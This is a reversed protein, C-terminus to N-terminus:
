NIRAKLKSIVEKINIFPLSMISWLSMYFLFAGPIIYVFPIPREVLVGNIEKHYTIWPAASEFLVYVDNGSGWIGMYNPLYNRLGVEVFFATLAMNYLAGFMLLLFMYGLNKISPVHLKWAILLLPVGVLIVHALFFRITNYAFITDGAINNPYLLSSFAFVAGLYYMYDKLIKNKSLMFFPYVLTSFGCLDTFFLEYTKLDPELWYRSFHIVWALVTLSFLFWYKFRNSKNKFAYYLGVIVLPVLGTYFLHNLSFMDLM